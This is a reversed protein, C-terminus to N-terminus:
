VPFVDNAALGLALAVALRLRAKAVALMGAPVLGLELLELETGPGAYTTELVPGLLTRSALVIDTGRNLAAKLAPVVRAPVHGGGTAAIVLGDARRNAAKILRDDSGLGIWVVDVSLNLTPPRGVFDTETPRGWARVRGEVVNGVPGFGPSGMAQLSVASTKTVWRALHVEGGLVVVAGTGSFQESVAVRVADLVNRAGDAGPQDVVRMAGTIAIRVSPNVMLSLAYATEEMTDTGQIVVAGVCGNGVADEIKEALELLDTFELASSGSRTVDHCELVALDPPVHAVIKAVPLRATSGEPGSAQRAITGGLGFVAIRPPADAKL